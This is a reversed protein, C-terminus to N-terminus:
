RGPISTRILFLGRKRPRGTFARGYGAKAPEESPTGAPETHSRGAPQRLYRNTPGNHYLIDYNQNIALAAPAYEELLAEQVFRTVSQQDSADAGTQLPLSATREAAFPVALPM